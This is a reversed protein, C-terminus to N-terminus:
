SKGKRKFTNKILELLGNILMLITVFELFLIIVKIVDIVIKSSHIEKGKLLLKIDLEEVEINNELKEIRYNSTKCSSFSIIYLLLIILFKSM